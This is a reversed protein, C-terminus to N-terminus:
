NRKFLQQFWGLVKKNSKPSPKTWTNGFIQRLALETSWRVKDDSDDLLAKLARVARKDGIKGLAKAARYRVESDPCGLLKVLSAVAPAGIRQLAEIARWSVNKNPDSVAKAIAEIVIPSTIGNLSGLARARVGQDLDSMAYLLIETVRQDKSFKASRLAAVVRRRVYPCEDTIMSILSNFSNSAGIRGLAKTAHLRVLWHDDLLLNTLPEVARRDGLKGLRDAAQWRLRTKQHTLLSLLIHYEEATPERAIRHGNIWGITDGRLLRNYEDFRNM